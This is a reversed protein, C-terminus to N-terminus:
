DRSCLLFSSYNIKYYRTDGVVLSNGSRIWNSYRRYNKAKFYEWGTYKYDKTYFRITQTRM